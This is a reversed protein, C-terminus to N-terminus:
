SASLASEVTVKIVRSEPDTSSGFHKIPKGDRGILYKNFNWSPQSGTAKALEAFFPHADNGRVKTVTFMPFKVGYTNFCVSAIKRSDPDEQKFDDSPFGLIVLGRSVYRSYLAELGEFQHTFGCYSATNVALVVKGSYDCLSQPKEDQLRKFTHQLLKSCGSGQSSQASAGQHLWPLGLLPLAFVFHRRRM